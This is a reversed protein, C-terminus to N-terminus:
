SGDKEDKFLCKAKGIFLHSGDINKMIDEIPKGTERSLIKAVKPLCFGSQCRGMGVRTRRKIADMTLAPPNSHIADVIEGESIGECRCVIRGYVPNKRIIDKRDKYNLDSVRVPKKRTSIFNEKKELIFGENKIIDVVMRAIAPSAALGPSQIGAVDVFGNVIKSSRIFFDETFTPARIGAFYTIISKENFNPLLIRYSDFIQNIEKYTVSKDDKDPIELATPGWQINGHVTVLVGGGKTNEKIPFSLHSLNHTIVEGNNKDFLLTSGKRPHITYNRTNAM